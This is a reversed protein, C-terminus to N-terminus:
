TGSPGPKPFSNAAQRPTAASTTRNRTTLAPKANVDPKAEVEMKQGHDGGANGGSLPNIGRIAAISEVSIEMALSFGNSGPIITEGASFLDAAGRQPISIQEKLAAVPDAVQQWDKATQRLLAAPLPAVDPAIWNKPGQPADVSM